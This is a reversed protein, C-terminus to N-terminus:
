AAAPSPRLNNKLFRVLETMDFPKRLLPAAPDVDLEITQGSVLLVPLNPRRHRLWNALDAGNMNGPVRVDSVVLDFSRSPDRILGMAVDANRARIVAAGLQMLMASLMDGVSSNDEILLVEYGNLVFLEQDTEAVAETTSSSIPFRLWVDTGRGPTSDISLSGGSEIAFHEVSSLGLGTGMDPEKTTFFPQRAKELIEPTMGVGQDRVGIEVCDDNTLRAELRVHGHQKGADAANRLLNLVASTLQYPDTHILQKGVNCVVSLSGRGGLATEFLPMNSEIFSKVSVPRPEVEGSRAYARLSDILRSANAVAKGSIALAKQLKADPLEHKLVENAGVIVQLLNNFEHAINGALRGISESREQRSLALRLGAEQELSQRLEATKQEVAETMRANAKQRSIRVRREIRRNREIRAVWLAIVILVITGVLVSNRTRQADAARQASMNSAFEATRQEEKLRELEVNNEVDRIREEYYRTISANKTDLLSNHLEDIRALDQKAQELRGLGLSTQLFLEAAKPGHSGAFRLEEPVTLLVAEAKAFERRAVHVDALIVAADVSEQAWPSLSEVARRAYELALDLRGLEVYARALLEEASGVLVAPDQAVKAEELYEYLGPLAEESQGILIQLESRALRLSKAPFSNPTSLVVPELADLWHGAREYRQLMLLLVLLNNGAISAVRNDQRSIASAVLAEYEDIADLSRGAWFLAAAYNVRLNRDLLEGMSSGSDKILSEFRELALDMNGAMLAHTAINMRVHVGAEPDDRIPLLAKAQQLEELSQDLRGLRMLMKGRLVRARVVLSAGEDDTPELSRLLEEAFDLMQAFEGSPSHLMADLEDLTVAQARAGLTLGCAVVLGVAVRGFFRVIVVPLCASIM